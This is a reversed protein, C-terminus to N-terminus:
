VGPQRSGRVAIWRGVATGQRSCPSTASLAHDNFTCWQRACRRWRLRHGEALPSAQRSWTKGYRRSHERVSFRPRHADNGTGARRRGCRLTPRCKRGPMGARIM